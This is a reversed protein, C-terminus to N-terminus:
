IIASNPVGAERSTVSNLMASCKKLMASCMNGQSSILPCDAVSDNGGCQGALVILGSFFCLCCQFTESKKSLIKWVICFSLNSSLVPQLIFLAACNVRKFTPDPSPIHLRFSQQIECLQIMNTLVPYPLFYGSDPPSAELRLLPKCSLPKIENYKAYFM